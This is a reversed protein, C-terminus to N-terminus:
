PKRTWRMLLQAAGPRLDVEFGAEEAARRSALNSKRMHAYIEDYSSAECAKRYAVRGIHRGQNPKNLYIQISAHRGVPPEDIQNIFVIGARQGGVEIKWAEGGPGGGRDPTGKTRSLLVLEPAVPDSSSKLRAVKPKPTARKPLRRAKSSPAKAIM